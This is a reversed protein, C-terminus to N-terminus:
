NVAVMGKGGFAEHIRSEEENKGVYLGDPFKISESEFIYWYQLWKDGGVM